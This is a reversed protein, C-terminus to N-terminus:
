NETQAARNLRFPDPKAPVLVHVKHSIVQMDLPSSPGPDGDIRARLTKKAVTLRLHDTTFYTMGPLKSFNGTIFYPIALLSRWWTLKPAVFVHFKGDDPAAQPAFNQFGGVSSTMTVLMFQTDKAWQHHKSTLTLQWHQHQALVKIGRALFVLPGFRQKDRQTVAVAANAMVGITMTSIMAHDNVVGIDLPLGEGKLLTQVALDPILPIHLVKALNNVTGQPIIGLRPPERRKVLGAAVQNITGDGGMAVVVDALASFSLATADGPAKTASLTVQHGAAQLQAAARKAVATARNHGAHPNYILQYSTM